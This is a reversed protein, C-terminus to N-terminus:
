DVQFYKMLAPLELSFFKEPTEVVMQKAHEYDVWKPDRTEGVQEKLEGDEVECLFVFGVWPKGNRIQQTCYFPSFGLVEDKDSSISIPNEGIIRKVTLGSEEQVERAVADYVSEYQVDLVGAPFELTGSYVPDSDPKWRTQLLIHKKNGNLREVIAAVYPIALKFDRESM